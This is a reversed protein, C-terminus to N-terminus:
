FIHSRDVELQRLAAPVAIRRRELLQIAGVGSAQIVQNEPHDPRRLLGFVKQLLYEQIRVPFEPAKPSIRAQARPQITQGDILAEIDQPPPM